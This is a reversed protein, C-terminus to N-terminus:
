RPAMENRGGGVRGGFLFEIMWNSDASNNFPKQVNSVLLQKFTSESRRIYLHM